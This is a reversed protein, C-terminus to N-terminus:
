LLKKFETTYNEWWTFDENPWVKHLLEMVKNYSQPNHLIDHPLHADILTQHELTWHSRDVRGIPYGTRPDTGRDIHTIKEKGFALLKETILNQDTVWEYDSHVLDRKIHSNFDDSNINMVKKWFDSHMLIFCIPYHYDTLDRGYCHIQGYDIKWYNSLPLMDADATMVMGSTVCAGYLRSVQAVTSTKFGDVPNLKFWEADTNDYILRHLEKKDSCYFIITSWGFQKWCWVTLPLLHLYKAEENTSIIITGKM